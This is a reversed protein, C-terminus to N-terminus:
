KSMLRSVPYILRTRVLLILLKVAAKQTIPVDIEASFATIPNKYYDPFYEELIRIIYACLEKMKDRNCGRALDFFCTSLIRLVFLEYFELSNVIGTEKIKQLSEELARYPLSYNKLGKFNHMASSSHQVYYYEAEQLIGIKDCVASFFLSIPMDEGREGSFFRIQHKEWLERRYFHSCVASIRFTWEEHEFRRYKGPIVTRLICEKEDVFKLGCIVMELAQSEAKECLNSIYNRGVYDDGDIFTVYEGTAHELGRNRAAAVGANEQDFLKIRTDEEVLKTLIEFSHDKSGDNIVLIELNQYSQEMISRICKEVYAENNYVPVIVSVLAAM